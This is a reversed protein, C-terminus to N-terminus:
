SHSSSTDILFITKGFILITKSLFWLSRFITAFTKDHISRVNSLSSLDCTCDYRTLHSFLEPSKVEKTEVIYIISSTNGSNHSTRSDSGSIIRRTTRLYFLHTCTNTTTLAFLNEYQIIQKNITAKTCTKGTKRDRKRKREDGM